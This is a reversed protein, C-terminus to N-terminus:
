KHRSEGRDGNRQTSGRPDPRSEVRNEDLMTQLQTLTPNTVTHEAIVVIPYRQEGDNVRCVFENALPDRDIDFYEYDVRSQMLYERVGFTLRCWDTGYVQIETAM